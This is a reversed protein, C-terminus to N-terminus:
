RHPVTSGSPEPQNNEETTPDHDPPLVEWEQSQTTSADPEPMGMRSILTSLIMSGISESTDSKPLLAEGASPLSGIMDLAEDLLDRVETMTHHVGATSAPIQEELTQCKKILLAHTAIMLVLALTLVEDLM